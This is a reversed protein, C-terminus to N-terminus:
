PLPRDHLDGAVGGSRTRAPAIKILDKITLNRAMWESHLRFGEEASIGTSWRDIVERRLVKSFHTSTAFARMARVIRSRGDVLVVHFGYGEGQEAEEEFSSPIGPSTRWGMTDYWGWRGPFKVLLGLLPGDAQIVLDMPGEFDEVMTQTIGSYTLILMNVGFDFTWTLGDRQLYKEGEPWPWPLGVGFTVAELTEAQDADRDDTM